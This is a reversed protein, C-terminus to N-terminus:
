CAGAMATRIAERAKGNVDFLRILLRGIGGAATVDLKTIQCDSGRVEAVATVTDSVSTPFIAHPGTKCTLSATATVTSTPGSSSYCVSQLKHDGVDLGGRGLAGCDADRVVPTLAKVLLRGVLEDCGLAPGSASLAAVLLLAPAPSLMPQSCRM